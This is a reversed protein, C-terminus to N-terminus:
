AASTRSSTRRRRRAGAVIAEYAARDRAAERAIRRGHIPGLRIEGSFQGWMGAFYLRPASRHEPAGRYAFPVGDPRLVDLHGVLPELGRRYGTACIVADPRVRTGDSLVVDDGDLRRVDGVVRADGRKLAAVFGDDVVPSRLRQQFNAYPGQRPRPLGYRRLDGFQLRNVVSFTLDAVRTPLKDGFFVLIPQGPIGLVERMALNPPTRMSLTVAAGADHLHGAIDVGSNGAGVVLVERGRYPTAGRFESSHILEPVFSNRGPWDPLVGVADWGTAIAVYRALMTHTSTELRWLGGAAREVRALSTNTRLKLRQHAAYRELYAVFEDCSPFRGYDRPMRYGQLNSMCRWSNLRLEPYRSRWRGGVADSSEIVLTEFGRTQLAAATALGAPGAGVVIAEHTEADRAQDIESTIGAM